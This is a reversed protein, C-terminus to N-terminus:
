CRLPNSRREQRSATGADQSREQGNEPSSPRTTESTVLAVKGGAVSIRGAKRLKAVARYFSTRNVGLYAALEAVGVSARDGEAVRGQLHLLVRDAIEYCGLLAVKRWANFGQRAAAAYLNAVFAPCREEQILQRVCAVDFVLLRTAEAAVLMGPNTKFDLVPFTAGYVEGARLTRVLHRDAKKLGCEYVHLRGSLVCVIRDAPDCENSVIESAECMKVRVDLEAALLARASEPLNAFLTAAAMCSLLDDNCDKMQLISGDAGSIKRPKEANGAHACFPHRTKM